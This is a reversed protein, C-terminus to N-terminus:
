KGPKNMAPKPKSPDHYSREWVEGGKSKYSTKALPGVRESMGMPHQAMFQSGAMGGMNKHEPRLKKKREGEKKGTLKENRKEFLKKIGGMFDAARTAKDAAGLLGGLFKYQPVPGGANMNLLAALRKEKESMGSMADELMADAAAAEPGSRGYEEMSMEGERRPGLPAGDDGWNYTGTIGASGLGGKTSADGWTRFDVDGISGIPIDWDARGTTHSGRPKFTEAAAEAQMAEAAAAAEEASAGEAMLREMNEMWTSPGGGPKMKGYTRGLYSEPDAKAADYVDKRSGAWSFPDNIYRDKASAIGRQRGAERGFGAARADRDRYFDRAARRGERQSRGFRLEDFDPTLGGNAFGIGQRMLDTIQGQNAMAVQGAAGMPNITGQGGLQGGLAKGASAGLPGGLAGGIAAGAAGGLAGGLPSGQRPQVRPAMALRQQAERWSM